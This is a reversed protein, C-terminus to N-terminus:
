PLRLILVAGLTTDAHSPECYGLLFIHSMSFPGAARAATPIPSTITMVYKPTLNV